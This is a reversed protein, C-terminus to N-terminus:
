AQAPRGQWAAAAAAAGLHRPHARSCGQWRLGHGTGGTGRSGCGGAPRGARSSCRRQQWRRPRAHRATSAAAAATAGGVEVVPVKRRTRQQSPAKSAAAARELDEPFCPSHMRNHRGRGVRPLLPPPPQAVEVERPYAASQSMERTASVHRSLRPTPVSAEARRPMISDLAALALWALQREKKRVTKCTERAQLAVEPPGSNHWHTNSQIQVRTGIFGTGM